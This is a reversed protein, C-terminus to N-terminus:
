TREYTQQDIGDLENGNKFGPGVKKKLDDVISANLRSRLELEDLRRGSLTQELRSENHCKELQNDLNELKTLKAMLDASHSASTETKSDAPIRGEIGKITTYLADIRARDQKLRNQQDAVQSELIKCREACRATTTEDRADRSVGQRTVKQILAAHAKVQKDIRDRHLSVETSLEDYQHKLREAALAPPVKLNTGRSHRGAQLAEEAQSRGVQEEQSDIRQDVVASFRFKLAPILYRHIFYILAIIELLLPFLSTFM